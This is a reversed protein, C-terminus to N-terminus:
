FRFKQPIQTHKLCTGDSRRSVEQPMVRVYGTNGVVNDVTIAGTNLLGDVALCLSLDFVLKVLQLLLSFDTTDFSESASYRCQQKGPCEPSKLALERWIDRRSHVGNM